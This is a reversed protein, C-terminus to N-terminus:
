LAKAKLFPCIRVRFVVNDFFGEYALGLGSGGRQLKNEDQSIFEPPLVAQRPPLAGKCSRCNISCYFVAGKFPATEAM